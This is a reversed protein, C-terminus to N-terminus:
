AMRQSFVIFQNDGRSKQTSTVSSLGSPSRHTAFTREGATDLFGIDAALTSLNKGTKSIGGNHEFTFGAVVSKVLCDDVFVTYFNGRVVAKFHHAVIIYNVFKFFFVAILNGTDGNSRGALHFHSGSGNGKSVHLLSRGPM